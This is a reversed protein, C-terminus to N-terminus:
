HHLELTIKKKNKIYTWFRKKCTGSDEFLKSCYNRHANELLSNVENRAQKYACWDTHTNTQKAKDYLHKRTKMKQKIVPNIWPLKICTKTYKTPICKNIAVYIADKLMQWNQEVSNQLPNSEIFYQRFDQIQNKLGVIDGKDFCFIKHPKKKNIRPRSADIHFTVIEHDSMGPAITVDKILAPKSAFVLDLIHNQRTPSYIFQDLNYNSVIDVFTDDLSVITLRSALFFWRGSLSNNVPFM